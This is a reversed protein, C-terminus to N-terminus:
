VQAPGESREPLNRKRWPSGPQRAAPGGPRGVARGGSRRGGPWRRPSTPWGFARARCGRASRRSRRRRSGSGRSGRASCRPCEIAFVPDHVVAIISTGAAARARVIEAVLTRTRRDLLATPEDLLLVKPSTVLVSALAVLRRKPVSLDYPHTDAHPELWCTALAEEVAADVRAPAWGLREPAYAIEARVSTRILQDEPRQFLYGVDGALDEPALGATAREAVTVTGAEPHLLAMCLRLITTKGAGNAGFLGVAEGAGVALTLDRLVPNGPFAFGVQDFRIM